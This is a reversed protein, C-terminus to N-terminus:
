TSAPHRMLCCGVSCFCHRSSVAGCSCLAAGARQLACLAPGRLAHGGLAHQEHCVGGALHEVLAEELMLFLGEPREQM